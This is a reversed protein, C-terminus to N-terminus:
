MKISSHITPRPSLSFFSCNERKNSQAYSVDKEGLIRRKIELSELYFQEAKEYDGSSYYLIALNNLSVAYETNETGLVVKSIEKSKLFM